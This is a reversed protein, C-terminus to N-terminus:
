AHYSRYFWGWRSESPLPKDGLLLCYARLRARATTKAWNRPVGGSAPTPPFYSREPATM